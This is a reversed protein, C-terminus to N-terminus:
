QNCWYNWFVSPGRIINRHSYCAVEVGRRAAAVLRALMENGRADNQWIYFEIHV